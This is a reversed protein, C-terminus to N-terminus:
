NKKESSLIFIDVSTPNVVVFGNEVEVFNEIKDKVFKVKSKLINGIFPSHGPLIGMFGDNLLFNVYEVDNEEVLTGKESLVRFNMLM